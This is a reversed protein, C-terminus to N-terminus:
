KLIARILADPNAPIPVLSGEYLDVREIGHGDDKYYFLGGMSMTRLHGEAVLQRVDELGPANSLVGEIYLGKNDERMSTFRGVVSGVSKDHDALMVPNLMFRAISDKFAGSVVYDGDRDAPTTNRFTSLYGAIAIDRYDVTSARREAPQSDTGTRKERVIRIIRPATACEKVDCVNLVKRGFVVRAPSAKVIRINM